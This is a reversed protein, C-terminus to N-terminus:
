STYLALRNVVAYVSVESILVRSNFIIVWYWIIYQCTHDIQDGFQIIRNSNLQTMESTLTTRWVINHMCVCPLKILFKGSSNKLRM